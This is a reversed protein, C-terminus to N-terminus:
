KALGRGPTYKGKVAFGSGSNGHRGKKDQENQKSKYNSEVTRIWKKAFSDWRTMRRGYHDRWEVATFQDFFDMCVREWDPFRESAQEKVFVDRVDEYIPPVFGDPECTRAAAARKPPPPTKEAKPKSQAGVTIEHRVNPQSMAGPPMPKEALEILLHKYEERRLRKNTKVIYFYCRQIEVSTLIGEREFLDKDFFGWKILRNIIQDLLEASIKPIRYLLKYKFLDDWELYYGNSYIACMLRIVILEAKMGFEGSLAIIRDDDFFDCMFPFYDLGSKKPRAM